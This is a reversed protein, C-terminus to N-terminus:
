RGLKQKYKEIMKQLQMEERKEAGHLGAVAQAMDRKRRKRKGDRKKQKRREEQQARMMQKKQRDMGQTRLGKAKANEGADGRTKLQKAKREANRLQQM